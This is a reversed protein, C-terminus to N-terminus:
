IFEEEFTPKLKLIYVVMRLSREDKRYHIKKIIQYNNMTAILWEETPKKGSYKKRAWTVWRGHNRFNQIDQMTLAFYETMKKSNIKELTDHMQASAYGISDYNFIDLKDKIEDIADDLNALIDITPFNNKQYEKLTEADREVNYVKACANISFVHKVDLGEKSGMTLIKVNKKDGIYSFIKERVKQKTPSNYNQTHQQNELEPPVPKRYITVPSGKIEAYKKQFKPDGFLKSSTTGCITGRVRAETTKNKQCIKAVLEPLTICQGNKLKALVDFADSKYGM